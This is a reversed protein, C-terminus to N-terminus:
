VHAKLRDRVQNLRSMADRSGGRDPHLKTALAKYGIDILQLALKRQADREEAQKMEHQRRNLAEVDVKAIAEKVPEHWAQPRVTHPKNYNPDSTKRVFDSLSSFPSALGNQKKMEGAYDMYRRAHRATIGFNREIWSQFDGHPLQGKAELMLEGARQYYPLAAAKAAEDGRRIEDKILPVLVHLPRAVAGEHREVIATSVAMEDDGQQSGAHIGM